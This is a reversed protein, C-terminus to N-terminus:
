KRNAALDGNQCIVWGARDNARQQIAGCPCTRNICMARYSTPCVTEKYLAVLPKVALIDFCFNRIAGQGIHHPAIVVRDIM